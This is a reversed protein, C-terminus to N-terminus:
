QVLATEKVEAEDGKVRQGTWSERQLSHNMVTFCWSTEGANKIDLFISAQVVFSVIQGTEYKSYM